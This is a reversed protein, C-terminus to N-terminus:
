SLLQSGLREGQGPHGEGEVQSSRRVPCAACAKSLMIPLLGTSTSPSTM